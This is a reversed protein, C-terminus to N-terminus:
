KRSKKEIKASKEARLLKMPLGEAPEYIEPHYESAHIRWRFDEKLEIGVIRFLKARNM